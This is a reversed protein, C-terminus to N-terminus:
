MISDAFYNYAVDVLISYHYLFTAGITPNKNDAIIFILQFAHCLGINLTLWRNGWTVILTNNIAQINLNNKHHNHDAVSSPIISVEAGTDVLFCLGSKCDIIYLLHCIHHSPVSTVM